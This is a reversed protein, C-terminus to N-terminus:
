SIENIVWRIDRDAWGPCDPLVKSRFVRPQPTLAAGAADTGRCHAATVSNEGPGKHDPENKM